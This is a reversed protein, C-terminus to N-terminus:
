YIEIWAGAFPAVIEYETDEGITEFKLGRERSPLSRYKKIANNRMKCKLGRERSPLSPREMDQERRKRFKLGRERSPLSLVSWPNTEEESIEIWAGAFPAVLRLLQQLTRHM